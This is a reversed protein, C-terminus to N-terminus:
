FRGPLSVRIHHEFRFNAVDATAIERAHIFGNGGARIRHPVRERGYAFNQGPLLLPGGWM